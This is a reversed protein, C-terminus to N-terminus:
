EFNIGSFDLINMDINSKTGKHVIENLADNAEQPTKYKGSKVDEEWDSNPLIDSPRLIDGMTSHFFLPTYTIFRDAKMGEIMDEKSMKNSETAALDVKANGPLVVLIALNEDGKKCTFYKIGDKEQELTYNPWSIGLIIEAGVTNTMHKYFQNVDTNQVAKILPHEKNKSDNLGKAFDKNPQEKVFALKQKIQDENDIFVTTHESVNDNMFNTDLAMKKYSDTDPTPIVPKDPKVVDSISFGKDLSDGLTEANKAYYGKGLVALSIVAVGAIVAGTSLWVDEQFLASASGPTEISKNFKM